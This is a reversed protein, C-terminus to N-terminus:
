FYVAKKNLIPANEEEDRLFTCLGLLSFVRPALDITWYNALAFTLYIAITYIFGTTKPLIASAAFYIAVLGLSGVLVRLVKTVWSGSSSDMIGKTMSIVAFGASLGFWAGAARISTEISQSDIGPTRTNWEFPVLWNPDVQRAAWAPLILLISFIFASLIRQFLNFHNRAGYEIPFAALFALLILGGLLWGLIIDTLFELGLAMGAIGLMIMVIIIVISVWPRKTVKALYSLLSASIQASDSPLGFTSKLKYPVVKDSVWYPRPSKYSIKFFDTLAASILLVMAAIYAKKSDWIWYLVSVLLFYYGHDGFFNVVNMVSQFVPGLKQFFTIIPIQFLLIDM